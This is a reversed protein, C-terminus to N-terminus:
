ALDPDKLHTRFLAPAKSPAPCRTALPFICHGARVALLCLSRYSGGTLPLHESVAEDRHIVVVHQQGAIQWATIKTDDLAAATRPHGHERANMPAVRQDLGISVGDAAPFPSNRASERM